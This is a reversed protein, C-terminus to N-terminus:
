LGPAGPLVSGAGVDAADLWADLAEAVDFDGVADPFGVAVVDFGVTADGLLASAAARGGDTVGVPDAGDEAGADEDGDEVDSAASPAALM